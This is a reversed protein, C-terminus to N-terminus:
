NRTLSIVNSFKSTSRYIEKFTEFGKEYIGFNEEMPLVVDESLHVCKQVAEDFSTYVGSAIGALMAAGLAAEEHVHIHHVECQFVDSIIQRWLRNTAGGGATVISTKRLGMGSFIEFCEKFSYTVGEMIARLMDLQHHKLALGFFMGTARPDMHPTREGAIYPTFFLGDSGPSTQKAIDDLVSYNDHKLIQKLFWNLSLGAGLTAGMINWLGPVVSCFKHMRLQKDYTSTQIPSYIQGGSGINLALMGPKVIGSGLAQMSHDSGGFIVPTGEKLGTLHAIPSTIKGAVEYPKFCSPIMDNRIGMLEIMYASWKVVSVDFLGTGSADTFETGIEGTLVFRIYDKPLLAVATKQYHQPENEKLWRLSVGFFGTAVPNATVEGLKEKGILNNMYGVQKVSRQDSWIIAPRIPKNQDDLIVLGHMQGSLGIMEIKSTPVQSEELVERIVGFTKQVWVDVNQEAYGKMPTEIDYARRSIGAVNGNQDLLLAKVASTGLDLGLTYNM